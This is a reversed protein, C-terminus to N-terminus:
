TRATTQPPAPHVARYAPVSLMPPRDPWRVEADIPSAVGDVRRFQTLDSWLPYDPLL